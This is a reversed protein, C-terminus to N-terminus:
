EALKFQVMTESRQAIVQGDLVRPEFRWQEVASIASNSFHKALRESSEIVQLDQTTGDKTVTFEVKVWGEISRTMARKPYKPSVSKEVKFGGVAFVKQSEIALWRDRVDTRAQTVLPTAIGVSDADDLIDRAEEIAGVEALDYAKSTLKQVIGRLGRKAESNTSELALVQNFLELANDGEPEILLNQDIKTKASVLFDEIQARVQEAPDIAQIPESSATPVIGTSSVSRGTSIPASVSAVADPTSRIDTQDNYRNNNFVAVSETTPINQPEQRSQALVLAESAVSERDKRTQAITVIASNIRGPDADPILRLSKAISEAKDLEGNAISQDMVAFMADSKEILRQQLGLVADSGAEIKNLAKIRQVVQDYDGKGMMEEAEDVLQISILQMGAKARANEPEQQLVQRYFDVAAGEQDGTLQGSQFAMEAMQLATDVPITEPERTLSNTPASGPATTAVQTNEIVEDSTSNLFVWAGGVVALLGAVIVAVQVSSDRSNPM